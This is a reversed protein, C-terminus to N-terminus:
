IDKKQKNTQKEGKRSHDSQQKQRKKMLKNQKTAARKIFIVTVKTKHCPYYWIIRGNKTNNNTNFSQYLIIEITKTLGAPRDTTLNYYRIITVIKPTQM